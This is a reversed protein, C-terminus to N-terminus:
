ERYLRFTYNVLFILCIFFLIIFNIAVILFIKKLSIRNDQTSCYHNKFDDLFIDIPYIIPTDNSVIHTKGFLYHKNNEKSWLNVTKFSEFCTSTNRTEEQLEKFLIFIMKSCDVCSYNRDAEYVPCRNLCYDSTVNPVIEVVYLQGTLLDNILVDEYLKVSKNFVVVSNLVDEPDINKIIDTVCMLHVKITNEFNFSTTQSIKNIDNFWIKLNKRM